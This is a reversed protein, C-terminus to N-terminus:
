TSSSQPLFVANVERWVADLGSSQLLQWAHDSPVVHMGSVNWQVHPRDKFTWDDGSVLGLDVASDRLDSWFADPADWEKSKSIIDAALGYRHWTKSADPAKTVVGRGDDYERGFGYLYAARADSRFGEAVVPDRGKANLNALLTFVKEAFLPALKTMEVDAPIEPPPLPLKTM